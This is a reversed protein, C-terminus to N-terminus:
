GTHAKAAQARKVRNILYVAFLALAGGLVSSWEPVEGLFLWSLFLAFAPILFTFSGARAAGLDRAAVFYVTTALTGVGAALFAINAWTLADFSAVPLGGAALSLGFTLISTAGYLYVSFAFVPVQRQAQSSALTLVSWGLGAGVYYITGSRVIQAVPSTLIELMIIGGAIGIALGFIQLPRIKTRQILSGLVFAFLPNLSSVMVGGKGAMATSLGLFFCTNYFTIGLAGIAIWRGAPRALKFSDGRILALPVYSLFTFLFRWFALNWASATTSVIKGSVWSGGWTAMAFVLMIFLVPRKVAM